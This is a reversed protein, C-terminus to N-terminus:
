ESLKSLVILRYDIVPLPSVSITYYCFERKEKEYIEIYELIAAMLM